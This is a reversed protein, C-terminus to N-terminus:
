PRSDQSVEYVVSAGGPVKGDLGEDGFAYPATCTIIANSGKKMEKCIAKEVGQPLPSSADGLKVLEFDATSPKTKLVRPTPSQPKAHWCMGNSQVFQAGGLVSGSYKVYVQSPM